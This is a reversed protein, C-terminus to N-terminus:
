PFRSLSSLAAIKGREAFMASITIVNHYSADRYESVRGDSLAEVLELVGDEITRTANFGLLDRARAFSVYYNRKDTVQEHTIVESDPILRQIIEGIERLQHNQEDVGVNIVQGAVRETPAELAILVARAIDYVHIFPRWQDGGHVTIQGERLAKATLLNVVLDFRLRHSAGFATGFRLIVPAFTASARELLIEESAIKTNAYLSVPTLPSREDLTDRSAGYVSCTSAFVLRSIGESRCLDAILETATVNTSISEDEDITCAPDGVIAGLHIVASADSLVSRVVADDRMDAVVLDLHPHCLVDRLGNV